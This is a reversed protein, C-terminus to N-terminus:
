KDLTMFLNNLSESFTPHAFINERIAEYTIGGAMAMQLVSMIEGGQAGLIAVGLIQKTDADVVAKMMGKTEGTEIGRAVHAMPLSAVKINLGKKRAEQETIGVRGLEPDIFMCYPIPRGTITVNQGDLINKCVVIYDNYSIHTFAPGGKVDGLAYIGPVITELKENVEINGKEDTTIGTNALTLNETNPKRGIAVLIHSCTIQRQDDGIQVTVKLGNGEKNISNVTARTHVAIFEETFIKLVEKAIDEDEKILIREAHELITVKSGFRRYMQGFEMAIYGAGIILLHEPVERMEMITESTLYPVDELGPIPPILPLAGTNIFIHEATLIKSDGTNLKVSIVKNETFAADGYILDIGPVDKVSKESGARSHMVVKEKRAIIALMDITVDGTRVGYENSRRAQYAMKASAVMTKTPTCGVNVCTGGVWKKEIIAVQWGAKALRRALPTGAQGSGIIIADYKKM